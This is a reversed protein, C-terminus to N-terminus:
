ASHLIIGGNGSLITGSAKHSNAIPVYQILAPSISNRDSNARLVGGLEVVHQLNKWDSFSYPSGYHSSSTILM